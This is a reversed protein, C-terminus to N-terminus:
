NNLALWQARLESIENDRDKFKKYAINNALLWAEDHGQAQGLVLAIAILSERTGRGTKDELEMANIQGEILLQRERNTLEHPPPPPPPSFQSSIEDYIGGIYAHTDDCLIWNDFIAFDSEAINAVVGNNIIAFKSM